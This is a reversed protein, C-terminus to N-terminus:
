PIPPANGLPARECLYAEVDFCENDNWGGTSLSEVCEEGGGSPASEWAEFCWPEGNSWRFSGDGLRGGIWTATTIWGGVLQAEAGTTYGV